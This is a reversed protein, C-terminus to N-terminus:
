ADYEKWIRIQDEESQGSWWAECADVFAQCGDEPDYDSQRLGTIREMTPFDTQRWWRRWQPGTINEAILHGKRPTGAFIEVTPQGGNDDVSLEEMSDYLTESEDIAIGEQQMEAAYLDGKGLQGACRIAAEESDAEVTFFTREWVTCKKDQYFKYCAM